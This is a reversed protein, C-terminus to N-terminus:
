QLPGRDNASPATLPLKLEAIRKGARDAVEALGNTPLDYDDTLEVVESSFSLQGPGASLPVDRTRRLFDSYEENWRTLDYKDRLRKMKQKNKEIRQNRWARESATWKAMEGNFFALNPPGVELDLRGVARSKTLLGLYLTNGDYQVARHNPQGGDGGLVVRVQPFSAMLDLRRDEPLDSLVIVFEDGKLTGLVKKLEAHAPFVRIPGPVPYLEPKFYTVGTVIVRTGGVNLAAYPEFLREAGDHGYLNASVFRFRAKRRLERIRDLGLGLDVPSPSFVDIDLRNMSEVVLDAYETWGTPAAGYEEPTEPVFTKGMAVSLRAVKTAPRSDLYNRERVIGGLTRASCGCPHLQAARTQTVWLILRSGEGTSEIERTPM